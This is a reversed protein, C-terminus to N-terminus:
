QIRPYAYNETEIYDNYTSFYGANPDADADGRIKTMERNRIGFVTSRISFKYAPNVNNRLYYIPEDEFWRANAWNTTQYSQLTENYLLWYCNTYSKTNPNTRSTSKPGVRPCDDFKGPRINPLKHWKYGVLDTVISAAVNVLTEALNPINLLNNQYGSPTKKGGYRIWTTFSDYNNANDIVVARTSGQVYPVVNNAVLTSTTTMKFTRMDYKTKLGYICVDSIWPIDAIHIVIHSFYGYNYLQGAQNKSVPNYKFLAYHDAPPNPLKGIFKYNPNTVFDCNYPTYSKDNSAATLTIYNSKRYFYLVVIIIIVISILLKTNTKM